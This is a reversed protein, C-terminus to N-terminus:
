AEEKLRKRMSVLLLAIGGIGVVLFVAIGIGGTSPLTFGKYNQIAIVAGLSLKDDTITGTLHSTNVENQGIEFENTEKTLQEGNVKVGFEKKDKDYTLQIEVPKALLRYGHPSKVEKIYYTGEKLAPFRVKGDADSKLDVFEAGVPNKCDMDTCLEFMADKLPNTVGNGDKMFKSLNLDFSYLDVEDEPGKTIVGPADTYDIRVHNKKVDETKADDTLKGYYVISVKEGNRHAALFDKSFDIMFYNNKGATDVTYNTKGNETAPVPKEMDDVYVKLTYDNSGVVENVFIMHTMTDVIQFVQAGKGGKGDDWNYIPDGFKPIQTVVQFQIYDGVGVSGTNEGAIMDNGGGIETDETMIGKDLPVRANKPTAHIDYVWSDGQDEKHDYNDTMPISVLFPAGAVYGSPTSMEVVLYFGLELNEFKAIGNEDESISGNGDLDVKGTEKSETAPTSGPNLVNALKNSLSELGVTDYNGLNDVYNEIESKMSEFTKTVTYTIKGDAGKKTEVVKFIGFTVGNLPENKMTDNGTYKKKHITLSGKADFDILNADAEAVIPSGVETAEAVHTPVVAAATSFVTSLALAVAAARAMWQSKKRMSTEEEYKKIDKKKSKTLGLRIAGARFHM